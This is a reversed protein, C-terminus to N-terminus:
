FSLQLTVNMSTTPDEEGVTVQKVNPSIMVGGECKYVLGALLTTTEHNEIGSDLMDYRAFLSLDNLFPLTYNGYISMLSSSTDYMTIEDADTEDDDEIAELNLDTGMNYEFGLRAGMGSWGSFFGMVNGTRSEGDIDYDLSSFVVGANFGDNKDLRKEGYVAQISLKENDDAANKKYGEGNTYLISLGISGLKQYLGLGLDASASWKNRDMASKSIFRKGWTKEQINFVNMGQLGVSLKTNEAIKYDMKANKIYMYLAEGNKNQVDSQFKFSVGEAINKKYTLYARDMYFGHDEGDATVGPSFRFYSVGSIGEAFIMSVLSAIVIMMSKKM